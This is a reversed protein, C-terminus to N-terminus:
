RRRYVLMLNNAPMEYRASRELGAQKSLDDLWSTERLGWGSNRAKLSEDFALNSATTEVGPEIWPGYFILPAGAGLLRGAAAVLGETAARPSIHAMNSCFLADARDLPWDRASADLQIPPLLNDGSYEARWAAISQLAEEDPDSPQWTIQPFTGAFFVAHEGTGSAVELVLGRAPLEKALVKAIPARNRAAAYAERKM